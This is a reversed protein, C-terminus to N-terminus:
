NEQYSITFLHALSKVYEVVFKNESVIGLEYATNGFYCGYEVGFKLIDVQQEEIARICFTEDWPCVDAEESCLDCKDRYIGRLWKIVMLNNSSVAKRLTKESWKCGHQHAWVIIELNGNMAANNIVKDDMRCGYDYFLKLIELDAYEASHACADEDVQCDWSLLLRVMELSNIQTAIRIASKGFPCAIDYLWQVLEMNRSLVAADFVKYFRVEYNQSVLEQLCELNGYSAMYEVGPITYSYLDNEILWKLMHVYRTGSFKRLVRTNACVFEVIDIHGGLVAGEAIDFISSPFTSYYYEVIKRHGNRAANCGVYHMVRNEKHSFYKVLELHGAGAATQIASNDTVCHRDTLWKVIELNGHKAAETMVDCYLVSQKEDVAWNLVYFNDASIAGMIVATANFDMFHHPYHAELRKLFTLDGRSAIKQYINSYKYLIINEDVFYKDPVYHGDHILEITFKYLPFYFGSFLGSKLLKSKTLTEQFQSVTQPMLKSLENIDNCTRLFSRKDSISLLDFIHRYIDRHLTTM